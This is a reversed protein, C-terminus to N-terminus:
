RTATTPAPSFAASSRRRITLRWRFCGNARTVPSSRGTTPSLEAFLSTVFLGHVALLAWFGRRNRKFNDLRRRNIPSLAWRSRKAVPMPPAFRDDAALISGSM